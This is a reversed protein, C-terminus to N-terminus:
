FTQFLMSRADAILDVKMDPRNQLYTLLIPCVGLYGASFMTERAM